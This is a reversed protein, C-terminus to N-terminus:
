LTRGSCNFDLYMLSTKISGSTRLIGNDSGLQFERRSFYGSAASKPGRSCYGQPWIFVAGESREGSVSVISPRRAAICLISQGLRVNRICKCSGYPSSRTTLPAPSQPGLLRSRWGRRKVQGRSYRTLGRGGREGSAVLFRIEVM